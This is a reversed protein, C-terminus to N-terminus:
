WSYKAGGRWGFGYFTTSFGDGGSQMLELQNILSWNSDLRIIANLSLSYAGMNKPYFESFNGVSLGIALTEDNVFNFYIDFSLITEFIPKEGFFSVFRFNPGISIGAREANYSIVPLISHTHTEYVPLGNYIYALSVALHPVNSLPTYKAGTFANIDVLGASKGVSVGSKIKYQNNLEIGGAASMDGCYTSSRNYEGRLFAELEKETIELSFATGWALLLFLPFLFLIRKNM